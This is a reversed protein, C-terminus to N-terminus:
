LMFEQRNDPRGLNREGDTANFAVVRSTTKVSLELTPTQKVKSIACYAIEKSILGGNEPKERKKIGRQFCVM